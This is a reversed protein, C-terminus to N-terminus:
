ISSQFASEFIGVSYSVMYKKEKLHDKLGSKAAVFSESFYTTGDCLTHDKEVPRFLKALSTTM